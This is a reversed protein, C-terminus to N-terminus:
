LVLNNNDTLNIIEKAAGEDMIFCGNNIFKSFAIIAQAKSKGAAVAIPYATKTMQELKIGISRSTYVIEGDKNLYYGLAEAVAEKRNLFEIVTDALNRRVVMENANGIGCLIINSKLIKNITKQIDPEKRVSELSKRSLNDPINLLEYNAELKTALKATLSNAQYEVNNRLSGRAPLVLVEPYKKNTKISHVVHYVTSGGAVAIISNNGIKNLLVKAAAKGINERVSINHAIDGSVIVVKDCKLIKKIIDELSYLGRLNRIVMEVEALINKGEETITMGSTSVQIYDLEKLFEVENRIIKETNNLTTALQRRGIPQSSEIAKLVEYRRNLVQIENPIIKNLCNLSKDM